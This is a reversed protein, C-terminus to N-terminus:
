EVGKKAPNEGLTKMEEIITNIQGLLELLTIETQTKKEVLAGICNKNETIIEAFNMEDTNQILREYGKYKTNLINLQTMALKNIAEHTTATIKASQESLEASRSSIREWFDNDMCSFTLKIKDLQIKDM